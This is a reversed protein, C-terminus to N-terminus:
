SFKDALVVGVIASFYLLISVIEINNSNNKNEWDNIKPLIIKLTQLLNFVYGVSFSGLSASITVLLM